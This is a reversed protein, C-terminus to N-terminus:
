VDLESLIQKIVIIWDHVFHMHRWCWNAIPMKHRHFLVTIQVASIIAADYVYIDFMLRSLLWSYLACSTSVCYYPISFEIM